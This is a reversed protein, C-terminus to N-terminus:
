KKKKIIRGGGHNVRVSVGKGEVASKREEQQGIRGEDYAEQVKSRQNDLHLEYGGAPGGAGVAGGLLAECGTVLFMSALLAAAAVKPATRTMATRTMATKRKGPNEEACLRPARAGTGRRRESPQHRM